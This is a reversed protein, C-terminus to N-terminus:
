GGSNDIVEIDNPISFKFFGDDLLINTNVNDFIWATKQGSKEELFISALNSSIFSITHGNVLHTRVSM